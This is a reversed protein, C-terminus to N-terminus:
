PNPAAKARAAQSCPGHESAQSLSIHTWLCSVCAICPHTSCHLGRHPDFGRGYALPACARGVSSLLCQSMTSEQHKYTHVCFDATADCLSHRRMSDARCARVRRLPMPAHESPWRLGGAAVLGSSQQGHLKTLQTESVHFAPLLQQLPAGQPSRVWSWVSVSRM